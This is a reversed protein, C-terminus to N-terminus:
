TVLSFRFVCASTYSNLNKPIYPSLEYRVLLVNRRLYLSQDTIAIYSELNTCLYNLLIGDEQIRNRIPRILALMESSNEAEM